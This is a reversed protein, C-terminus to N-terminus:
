HAPHGKLFAERDIMAEPHDAGPGFIIEFHQAGLISAFNRKSRELADELRALYAEPGIEGARLESAIQRQEKRLSSQAAYLRSFTQEDLSRGLKLRVLADLERAGVEEPSYNALPLSSVTRDYAAKTSM